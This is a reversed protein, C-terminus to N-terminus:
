NRASPVENNSDSLSVNGNYQEIITKLDYYGLENNKVKTMLQANDGILEQMEDKFGNYSIRIKVMGKQAYYYNERNLNHKQNAIVYNYVFLNIKGNEIRQLLMDAGNTANAHAVRFKERHVGSSEFRDFNSASIAKAKGDLTEKFYIRQSGDILTNGFSFYGRLRQNSGILEGQVFSKKSQSYGAIISAVVMLASFIIKNKM